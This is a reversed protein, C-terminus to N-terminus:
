CIAGYKPIWITGGGINSVHAIAALFAESCDILGDGIAGFDLVNAACPPEPYYAREKNAYGTFSWDLLLERNWSENASGWIGPNTDSTIDLTKASM